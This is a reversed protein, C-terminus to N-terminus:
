EPSPCVSPPISSTSPLALHCIPPPLRIHNKKQATTSCTSRRHQSHPAAPLPASVLTQSRLFLPRHSSHLRCTNLSPSKIRRTRTPPYFNCVPHKRPTLSARSLPTQPGLLWHIPLGGESRPSSLPRASRSMLAPSRLSPSHSATRARPPHGRTNALRQAATSPGGGGKPWGKVLGRVLERRAPWTHVRGVGERSGDDGSVRRGLEVGTGGVKGGGGGATQRPCGGREGERLVGVLWIVDIGLRIKGLSVEAM